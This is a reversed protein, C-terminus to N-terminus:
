YKYYFVNAKATQSNPQKSPRFIKQGRGFELVSIFFNEQKSSKQFGYDKDIDKTYNNYDLNTTFDKTKILSNLDEFVEKSSKKNFSDEKPPDIQFSFTSLKVGSVMDIEDKNKFRGIRSDDVPINKLLETRMEDFYKSKNSSNQFKETGISNLRLKGLISVSTIIL